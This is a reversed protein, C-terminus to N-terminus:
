RPSAAAGHAPALGAYLEMTDGLRTRGVVAGAAYLAAKSALAAPRVIPSGPLWADVSGAVIWRPTEHVLEVRQFGAWEVLRTLTAPTYHVLHRPLGLGRWRAGFLSAGLSRANSVGIAILGGPALVGRVKELLRQPRYALQLVGWLTVVDFPGAPLPDDEIDLQTVDRIGLRERAHWVVVEENDVGTVEWGRDRMVDLFFGDGAGLDLLRGPRPSLRSLRDARGAFPVRARARAEPTDAITGDRVGRARGYFPYGPPYALARHERRFRPSTYRATCVECRVVGFRRDDGGGGEVWDDTGVLLVSGRTAGCLPCHPRELVPDGGTPPGAPRPPEKPARARAITAIARDLVGALDGSALPSPAGPDGADSAVSPVPPLPMAGGPTDSPSSM